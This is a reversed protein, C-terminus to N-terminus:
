GSGNRRATGGPEPVDSAILKAAGAPDAVPHRRLDTRHWEFHGGDAGISVWLRRGTRGLRVSLAPKADSMGVDLGLGAFERCLAALLRLRETQDIGM